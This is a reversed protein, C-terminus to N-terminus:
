FNGLQLTLEDEWGEATRLWQKKVGCRVFGHREFLRLSPINGAPIDTYLQHLRLVEFGYRVLIDLARSAYGKRRDALECILIGVGARLHVPDFDFLDIVGVARGSEALEVVFRTQRTQYIDRAQEVIFQELMHRSFPLLTHSVEWVATDNEWRYLMEIDSPELARLRVGNNELLSMM